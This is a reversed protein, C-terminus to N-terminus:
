LRAAIAKLQFVVLTSIVHGVAILLVGLDIGDIRPRRMRADDAAQWCQLEHLMGLLMWLVVLHLGLGSVAEETPWLFGATLLAFALMPISLRM